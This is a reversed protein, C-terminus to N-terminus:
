DRQRRGRRVLLGVAGSGLLGFSAPEPVIVNQFLQMEALQPRDGNANDDTTIRTEIVRLRYQQFSGPTDVTFFYTEFRDTAVSNDGVTPQDNFTHGTVTDVTTWNTADNSGELFFDRPDRGNSDNASTLSYSRVTFATTGAFDYAWIVPNAATVDGGDTGSAAAFTLVKTGANDDFLNTPNETGNATGGNTGGYNAPTGSATGGSTVDFTNILLTGARAHSGAVLLSGVGVVVLRFLRM